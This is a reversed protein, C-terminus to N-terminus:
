VTGRRDRGKAGKAEWGKGQETVQGGGPGQEGGQGRRSRAESMKVAGKGERRGRGQGGEGGRGERM